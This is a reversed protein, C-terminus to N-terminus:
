LHDVSTHAGEMVSVSWLHWQDRRNTWGTLPGTDLIHEAM